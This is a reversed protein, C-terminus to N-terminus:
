ADLADEPWAGRDRDTGAFYEVRNVSGLDSKRKPRECESARYRKAAVALFRVDMYLSPSRRGTARRRQLANDAMPASM